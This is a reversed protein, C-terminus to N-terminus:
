VMADLQYYEAEISLQDLLKTDTILPLKPSRLFNLVYQFLQGDRDIFLAGTDDLIPPVSRSFMAALHSEPYRTLTSKSTTHCIGGVNLRVLTQHDQLM